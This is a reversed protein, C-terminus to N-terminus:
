KETKNYKKRILERYDSLTTGTYKKFFRSFYAPDDFGLKHGIEKTNCDTAYLQVKAEEVIKNRIYEGATIGTIKKIYDNLIVPRINLKQAYFSVDKAAKFNEDLLQKFRLIIRGSIDGFNDILKYQSEHIRKSEFLFVMLLGSIIEFKYPNSHRNEEMMQSILFELKSADKTEPNIITYFDPNNFLQSKLISNDCKSHLNFFKTNFLISMGECDGSLTLKHLLGPPVFFVSNESVVYEIFNTAHVAEGKKIWFISFFDHIHFQSNEELAAKCMKHIESVCFLIENNNKKEM